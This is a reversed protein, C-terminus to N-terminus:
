YRMERLFRVHKVCSLIKHKQQENMKYRRRRTKLYTLAYGAFRRRTKLNLVENGEFGATPPPLFLNLRIFTLQVLFFIYLHVYDLKISQEENM